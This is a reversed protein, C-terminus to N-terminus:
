AVGQRRLQAYARELAELSALLEEGASIPARDDCISDVFEHDQNHVGQEFGAQWSTSVRLRGNVDLREYGKIAIVGQTGLVVLDHLRTLANFSHVCTVLRGKRTRIVVTVDDNLVQHRGGFACLHDVRDGLFWLAADLMHSGHHYLVTSTKPDIPVRKKEWNVGITKRELWRIVIQLVDGIEGKQLGRYAQLYQPTFRATMAVMLTRQRVRALRCLVRAEALSAAMPKEVLVHKGARLAARAMAFHLDNPTCLVVGEVAPDALLEPYSRYGQAIGYRSKAHALSDPKRSMVATLRVAKHRSFVRLHYEAISGLGVVALGITSQAPKM